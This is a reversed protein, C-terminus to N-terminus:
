DALEAKTFKKYQESRAMFATGALKLNPFIPRTEPSFTNETLDMEDLTDSIIPV